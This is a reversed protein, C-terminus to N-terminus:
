ELMKMALARKAQHRTLMALVYNIDNGTADSNNTALILVLCYRTGVWFLM